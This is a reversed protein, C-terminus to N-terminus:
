RLATVDYKGSPLKPLTNRVEIRAPVMYPPLEARCFKMLAQASGAPRLVVYAVIIEGRAADPEGVVVAEAVEGSAHLVDGIEDPGVRFGMTKIIRDRRGVYTLLGNAARRVMDGSYVVRPHTGGFTNPRFVAATAVPDDWYGDAITPGEHVLEGTEDDACPTGDLRVVRITTEPMARGMSGPHADVEEPPLFTGRFTETQGYQLFLRAAPFLARLRRVLEAPLHGGANQLLRLAPPPDVTFAPAALLQSWLPPVAALVTVGAARLAAAADNMLRSRDVVLTARAAITCLVQNLGYVSSFPLLSAVRDDSRLGLYSTVIRVGDRLAQHSFVVGKPLGSSGSTVIIQAPDRPGRAAPTLSGARPADAADLMRAATDLPRPLTALMEATTLIVRAGARQVLQELQRPRLRENLVVAVGGAAHVGALASVAEAGRELLLAVRDGPAVGASALAGAFGAARAGLEAYTVTGGREIVATQSAADRAAALLSDALNAHM